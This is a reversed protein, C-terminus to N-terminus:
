TQTKVFILFNNEITSIPINDILSEELNKDTQNEDIDNIAEILGGERVGINEFTESNLIEKNHYILKYSSGDGHNKLTEVLLEGTTHSTVNSYESKEAVTRPASLQTM